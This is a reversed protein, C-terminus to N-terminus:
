RARLESSLEGALPLAVAPTEDLLADFGARDIIALACRRRAVVRFPRLYGSTLAADGYRDGPELVSRVAQGGFATELTASGSVLIVLRQAEATAGFERAEGPELEVREFRRALRAIEGARLNRFLSVSALARELPELDM